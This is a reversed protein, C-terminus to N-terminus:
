FRVGVRGAIGYWLRSYSRTFETAAGTTRDVNTGKATFAASMFFMEAGIYFPGALYDIGLRPVLSWGLFLSSNTTANASGDITGTQGLKTIVPGIGLSGWLRISEDLIRHIRATAVVGVHKDSTSGDNYLYESWYLQGGVSIYDRLAHLFEGSVVLSPKDKADWHSRSAPLKVQYRTSPLLTAGGGISIENGPGVIPAPSPSSEPDAPTPSEALALTTSLLALSVLVTHIM